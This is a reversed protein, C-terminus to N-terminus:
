YVANENRVVQQVFEAIRRKMVRPAYERCVTERGHEGLQRRRDEDGLLQCVADSFDEPADALYLDKRDLLALGEAGIRTSVVAKKYGLAELLKIRTGSGFRVPCIVVRASELYPVVSDVTGTVFVRKGDHLAQIEPCPSRGVIYTEIDPIRSILRPLIQACYFLMADVNPPFDMRGVFVVRNTGGETYEVHSPSEFVNPLAAVHATGLLPCDEENAVLSLSFQRALAREARKWRAVDWRWLWGAPGWGKTASAKRLSDYQVDDFDCITRPHGLNGVLAATTARQVWVVDFSKALSAMEKQMTEHHHYQLRPPWPHLLRRCLWGVSRKSRGGDPAFQAADVYHVEAYDKETSKLHAQEESDGICWLTVSGIERLGATLHALRIRGGFDSPYPSLPTVYLINM